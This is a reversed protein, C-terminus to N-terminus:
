ILVSKSGRFSAGASNSARASLARTLFHKIAKGLREVGQEITQEDNQIFCLRFFEFGDNNPFFLDGPSFTVGEREAYKLLERSSLGKPLKVWVFLGGRPNTSLIAQDPLGGSERLQHAESVTYFDPLHERLSRLMTDRLRRYTSKVRELHETYLGNKLYNALVVQAMSNTSLDSARKAMRIRAIAQAPAVLWGVRLGPCLAKSFTGQQIVVGESHPLSRLSPLGKREYYLEGAFNDELVPVGYFNALEILRERRALSLCVGTPNQFDPIVYILKPNHRILLPEILDVRMGEEDMPVPILRAQRARFNCLAWFYTPQEIIVEDSQDIFSSAVLDIGQQSGSLILLEDNSVSIGQGALYKKVQERLLADGEAPSYDFLQNTAKDRTLLNVIVKLQDYPISESAPSGGSFSILDDDETLSPQRALLEATIRSARSFRQSWDIKSAFDSNGSRAQSQRARVFTGRGVHSEIMGCNALEGLARTVTSRDVKLLGALQRNTPLKADLPVRGSQISEALRDRLQAYLPVGEEKPPNLPSLIDLWNIDM